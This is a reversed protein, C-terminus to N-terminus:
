VVVGDLQHGGGAVHFHQLVVEQVRGRDDLVPGHRAVKLEVKLQEVLAVLVEDALVVDEYEYLLQFPHGRSALRTPIADRAEQM